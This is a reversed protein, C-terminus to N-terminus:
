ASTGAARDARQAALSRALEDRRDAVLRRLVPDRGDAALWADTAALTRDEVQYAPYLGIVIQQAMEISRTEYVGTLAQFYRDAFPALLERQDPQVFGGIVAEQTSNGLRGETVVAAWAEDKAAPDPRAALGAAHRRHGAASPDRALEADLRAEGARGTAVLRQLLDWRLDTDLVLGDPCWSEDLLAELDDLQDPERAVTALARAWALQQDSGARASRLLEGARRAYRRLGEERWGPDAYQDLALKLQRQLSLVVGIDSEGAVGALVTGLYDRTALEGDRTMDWLVSWCLTRALPDAIDGVRARVVALSDPDLRVKAYTLDGDNPLLLAPRRRPAPLAVTATEAEIDLEVRDARVLRGDVDDYLGVAIRHPRLVAPGASGAPLLAPAQTVVLRDVLGSPDSGNSSSGRLEARLSNIGATQLWAQSWRGLDRGSSEELASLLDPLTTNSWAHRHMYRAVGVLFPELGVYAVLQRLVS